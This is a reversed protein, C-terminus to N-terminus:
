KVNPKSGQMVKFSFETVARSIARWVRDKSSNHPGTYVEDYTIAGIVVTSTERFLLVRETLQLTIVTQEGILFVKVYVSGQSKTHLSADNSIVSIGNDALEQAVRKAVEQSTFGQEEAYDNVDSIVSVEGLDKLLEVSDSRVIRFKGDGIAIASFVLVLILSGIKTWNM